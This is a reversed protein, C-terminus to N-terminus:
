KGRDYNPVECDECIGNVRRATFYLAILVLAIAGVIFYWRYNVVFLVGGAGLFGLLVAVCSSCAATALLGGFLASYAGAGGSGVAAAVNKRVRSKRIIYMQMMVLLATVFSLVAFLLYDRPRLIQLQFAISNGPTLWVPIFVYAAIFLVTLIALWVGNRKQQLVTKSALVVVKLHNRNM